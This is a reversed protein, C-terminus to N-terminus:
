VMSGASLRRWVASEGSAKILEEVARLSAAYFSRMEQASTAHSLKQEIEDTSLSQPPQYSALMASEGAFYAALGEALWRPAKGSSLRDIVYHAYEHRITTALIRRRKLLPLPQLHITTGHTAAAAWSPQGTAAIFEQTTRHFVLQIKSERTLSVSARDLRELLDQRAGEINSLVSEVDKVSTSSTGRATFHESSLIQPSDERAISPATAPQFAAAGPIAHASVPQLGTIPSVVYASAPQFASTGLVSLASTPQFGASGAVASNPGIITGPFYHSVIQSYSFGLRAMEHAGEQCLGLGHGFGSGRFVFDAGERSAEFRSSKIMNWGLSRGVIMKFDWGRVVIRRKGDLQLFEARGTHDRKVIQIGTLRSGIDTKSDSQLARALSEARIRQVWNNNPMARCYDDRVGRLYSPAPVGWLTGIDATMGGCSAHFYPDILAGREDSLVQGETEAVAKRALADRDGKIPIESYRECHTLSCFDYGDRRHRGANKIAFTRSVIAQAKLAEIRDEISAEARLVGLVYQELPVTHTVNERVLHVKVQQLSAPVSRVPTLNFPHDVSDSDSFVRSFGTSRVQSDLASEAAQDCDGYRVSNSQSPSPAILRAYEAFIPNTMAACESGHSHKLFALIAISPQDNMHSQSAFGVFWGQTRFGSSSTSTGTKGFVYLPLSKLGSEAATGFSVAGRMGRVLAAREQESVSQSGIEDAKFGQAGAQRPRFLHGGCILAVYGRLLQIPTVLLQDGEGLATKINWDPGPIRGPSESGAIGTRAGFGFGALTSQFVGNSLREATKAFYYNCSFALAQSLDFPGDSKPHSCVVHFDKVSYEGGCRMASHSDILGTRMAALSTFAKITSGPPYAQEYALRPNVVARLRGNTPDM